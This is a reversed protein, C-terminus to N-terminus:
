LAEKEAKLADRESALSTNETELAEIKEGTEKEIKEKESTLAYIYDIVDAKHFGLAQKRFNEM